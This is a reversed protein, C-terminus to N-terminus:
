KRLTKVSVDVSDLALAFLMVGLFFNDFNRFMTFVINNEGAFIQQINVLFVPNILNFGLLWWICLVASLANTALAVTMVRKNYRGELLQMGERIIGCAAFSVVIFWTQRVVNLDFLSIVRNNHVVCFVEPTFVMLVVFIACFVIGAISEWKSIEEQKRPVPPLDDFNFPEKLKIGKHYFYAFLLTVVAFSAMLANYLNALWGFTAAGWVQPEIIQLIVNAITMGATVALLVIKLVFKYTSYYPQGILCKKADEDYKAYLEEPSGLELLVIRVDKEEPIRGVCREALMDEVLGRLEMSVDERKARPLRKTVAYIYREILDQNM